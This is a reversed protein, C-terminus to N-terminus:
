RRFAYARPFVLYQCEQGDLSELVSAGDEVLSRENSAKGAQRREPDLALCRHLVAELVLGWSGWARGAAHLKGGWSLAPATARRVRLCAM